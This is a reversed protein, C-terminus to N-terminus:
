GDGRAGKRGTPLLHALIAAQERYPLNDASMKLHSGCDPKSFLWRVQYHARGIRQTQRV